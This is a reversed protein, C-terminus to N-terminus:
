YKLNKNPLGLILLYNGTIWCDGVERDSNSRMMQSEETPRAAFSGDIRRCALFEIRFRDMFKDWAGGGLAHGALGSTSYHMVPSVHGDTIEAMNREWYQTMKGYFGGKNQKLCMWAFIAGSTRGPEGMGKQGPRDAYGVGGDGAACLEVYKMAKEIADARVEVGAQQALGLAGLCWNSMIELELYDLANPGGPGHAWGGSAEQNKVIQAAIDALASKVKADKASQYVMGLFVGGYGLAWNSQNWNGKGGMGKFPDDGTAAKEIANKMVFDVCKGAAEKYNGNALFAMGCVSTVVVKGTTAAMRTPFGGDPEQQKVLWDLSQKAMADCRKCSKPCGKSHPGLSPLTLKIQVPKGGREVSLTCVASKKATVVELAEVLQFVPHKSESFGKGEIGVIVDGKLLGGKESPGDKTVEIVEIKDKGKPNGDAGILGLNFADAGGRDFPNAPPKQLHTVVLAFAILAHM